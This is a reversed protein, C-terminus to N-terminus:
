RCREVDGQWRSYGGGRPTALSPRRAIRANTPWQRNPNPTYSLQYLVPRWFRPNPTRAGGSRGPRRTPHPHWRWSTRHDRYLTYSPEIPRPRHPHNSRVHGLGIGGFENLLNALLQTPNGPRGALLGGDRRRHHEHHYEDGRNEEKHDILHQGVAHPHKEPQPLLQLSQPM